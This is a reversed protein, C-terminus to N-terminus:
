NPRRPPSETATSYTTGRLLATIKWDPILIVMTGEPVDKLFRPPSSEDIEVPQNLVAVGVIARKALRGLADKKDVAKGRADILRVDKGDIVLEGKLEDTRAFDRYAGLPMAVVVEGGKEKASVVKYLFPGSLSNPRAVVAGIGGQPPPVFAPVGGDFEFQPLPVVIAPRQAPMAPRSELASLRKEVALLRDAISDTQASSGSASEEAKGCPSTCLVAFCVMLLGRM